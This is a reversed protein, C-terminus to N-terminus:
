RCLLCRAHSKHLYFQHKKKLIASKGLLVAFFLSFRTRSRGPARGPTWHLGLAVGPPGLANGPCGPPAGSSGGRASLAGRPTGNSCGTFVWLPGWPPDMSAAAATRRRWRRRNYRVFEATGGVDKMYVVGSRGSLRSNSTLQYAPYANIGLEINICVHM